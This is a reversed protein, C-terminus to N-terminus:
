LLSSKNPCLLPLMNTVKMWSNQCNNKVQNYINLIIKKPKQSDSFDWQDEKDALEEALFKIADYYKPFYAFKFLESREVKKDIM